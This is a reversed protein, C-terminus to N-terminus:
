SSLGVESIDLDPQLGELLKRRGERDGPLLQCLCPQEQQTQRVHHLAVAAVTHHLAPHLSVHSHLFM